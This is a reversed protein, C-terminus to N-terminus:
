NSSISGSGLVKTDSTEPNGTYEIDGSGNVRAKLSKSANVVADGSGSVYAQTNNSKLKSGMFDGSGSIKVELENASGSLTMDGSGTVKANVSQSEIALIVDGSGTISVDFNESTITDRSDVDGSGTLSVKSIDQFPVTIHIGKKSKINVNKKIRLILADDKVEVIVYEHLNDEAKVTITGETGKELHVDMLGVAKIEDYSGTNVTKTTINGNGTIRNGWQANAESFGIISLTAALFIKSLTKM